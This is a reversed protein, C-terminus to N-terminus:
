QLGVQAGAATAGAPRQQRQVRVDVRGVVEEQSGHLPSGAAATAHAQAGAAAHVPLVREHCCQLGASDQQKAPRQPAAKARHEKAVPSALLRRPASIAWGALASANRGGGRPEVREAATQNAGTAYATNYQIM